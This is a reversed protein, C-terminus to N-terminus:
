RKRGGSQADPPGSGMPTFEIDGSVAEGSIVQVDLTATVARTGEGLDADATAHVQATGVPGPTYLNAIQPNGSSPTCQVTAPDSSEWKTPGDVKVTNGASDKWEVSVTAYTHVQMTASMYEGEFVYNGFTFTFVARGGGAGAEASKHVIVLPTGFTIELEM